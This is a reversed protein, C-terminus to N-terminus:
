TGRPVDTSRRRRRLGWGVVGLMAVSGSGLPAWPGGSRRSPTASSTSSTTTTGTEGTGWSSDGSCCGSPPRTYDGTDWSTDDVGTEEPLQIKLWEYSGNLALGAQFPSGRLRVGHKNKLTRGDFGGIVAIGGSFGKYTGLLEDGPLDKRPLELEIKGWNFGYGLEFALGVVGGRLQIPFAWERGDDRVVLTARGRVVGGVIAVTGIDLGEIWAEDAQIGPLQPPPKNCGLMTVVLLPLM